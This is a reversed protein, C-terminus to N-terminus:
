KGRSRHIYSVARNMTKKSIIYLVGKILISEEAFGNRLGSRHILKILMHLIYRRSPSNLTIETILETEIIFIELLKDIAAGQNIERLYDVKKIIENMALFKGDDKSPYNVMMDKSTNQQHIRYGTLKEGSVAMRTRFVLPIFFLMTDVGYNLDKLLFSYKKIFAARISVCSVNGLVGSKTIMSMTQIGITYDFEIFGLKQSMRQRSLQTPVYIKKSDVDVTDYNVHLYNIQRRNFQEFMYSLEGPSFEDDDECFTIVEGRALAIATYLKTGLGSASPDVIVRINDATGPNIVDNIIHSDSIVIVEYRDKEFDQNIVSALAKKFFPIRTPLVMAPIIVTIDKYSEREYAFQDM